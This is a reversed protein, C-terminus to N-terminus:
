KYASRWRIVLYSILNSLFIVLLMIVISLSVDVSRYDTINALGNFNFNEKMIAYCCNQIEFESFTPVIFLYVAMLGVSLIGNKTIVGLLFGISIYVIAILLSTLIKILVSKEPEPTYTFNSIDIKNKIIIDLIFICLKNIIIFLLIIMSSIFLFHTIKSLVYNERGYRLIKHKYVGNKLDVISLIIGIVAFLIPFILIGIELIHSISYANSTSYIAKGLMEKYYLIPNEVTTTGDDNEIINYEGLKLDEALQSEDGDYFSFIRTYDNYNSMVYQYQFFSFAICVGVIILSIIIPAKSYKIYNFDFALNRSFRNMELIGKTFILWHLM